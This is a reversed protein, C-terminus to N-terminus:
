NSGRKNFWNRYMYTGNMGTLLTIQHFTILFPIQLPSLIKREFYFEKKMDM